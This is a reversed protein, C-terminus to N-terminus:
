RSGPDHGLLVDLAAESIQGVPAPNLNCMVVVAMSKEPLMVFDTSFGTDGGGHGITKEGRYEGIFWSLGVHSKEGTRFWPKWLQDYSNSALIKQDELTGRNLNIMAWRCMEVVNSHLTSSPGHMRNYPYGDWPTTTSLQVHPAAWTAPLHEPKLFTSEKMGAPDLIQEKIYDAFSMGSAKSIVDGLCEFAMNSYAFQEGPAAIMTEGSISRVYQELAGEDYVPDDWQYDQVDPMGSIHNLMQMITISDFHGGELRFYPLIRIVVSELSVKDQEVLQMIATAVFPKSISAMHFLSRITVPELTENNKYGFAKAYVIEGDKVVGVALGPLDYADMMEGIYPTLRADLTDGTDGSIISDPPNIERSNCSFVGLILAATFCNLFGPASKCFKM